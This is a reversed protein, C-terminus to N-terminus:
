ILLISSALLEVLGFGQFFVPFVGNCVCLCLNVYLIPGTSVENSSSLLRCSIQYSFLKQDYWLEAEAQEISLIEGAFYIEM